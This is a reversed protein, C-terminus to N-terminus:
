PGRPEIGRWAALAAPASQFRERPDRMLCLALFDEVAADVPPKMVESLRPALTSCKSEVMSLMDRSPFPLRGSLARFIVTACAYLDARHDFSSDKAIQEPPMFSLTGLCDFPPVSVDGSRLAPLRASAFDLIKVRTDGGQRRELFLHAPRLDAHVVGARHLDCLGTLTQVVLPHLDRLPLPGGRKLRALLTEGELLEMAVIPGFEGGDELALGRILHDSDIAELLTVELRLRAVSSPLARLAGRLIKLALPRKDGLLEVAYVHSEGEPRLSEVVRYRGGILTGVEIDVTAGRRQTDVGLSPSCLRSGGSTFSVRPTLAWRKRPM